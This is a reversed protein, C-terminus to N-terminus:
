VDMGWTEADEFQSPLVDGPAYGQPVKNLPVVKSRVLMTLPVALVATILLSAQAVQDATLEVVNFVVLSSLIAVLAASLSSALAVPEFHFVGEALNKAHFSM